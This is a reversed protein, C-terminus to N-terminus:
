HFTLFAGSGFGCSDLFLDIFRFSWPIDADIVRLVVRVPSPFRRRTADRVINPASVQYKKARTKVECGCAGLVNKVWEAQSSAHGRTCALGLSLVLSVSVAVISSRKINIVPEKQLRVLHREFLHLTMRFSVCGNALYYAIM